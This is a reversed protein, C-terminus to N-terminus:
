GSCTRLSAGLGVGLEVALAAVVFEDGRIGHWMLTCYGVIGISFSLCGRYLAGFAVGFSTGCACPVLLVGQLSWVVGGSSGLWDGSCGPSRLRFVEGRWCVCRGGALLSQRHVEVVVCTRGRGGGGVVRFIVGFRVGM